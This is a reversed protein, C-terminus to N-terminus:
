VYTYNDCRIEQYTGDSMEYTGVSYSETVTSSGNFTGGFNSFSWSGSYSTTTSKTVTKEGTLWGTLPADDGKSSIFSACNTMAVLGPVLLMTSLLTIVGAQKLLGKM